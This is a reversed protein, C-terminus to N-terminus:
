GKKKLEVPRYRGAKLEQVLEATSSVWKEFYTATAPIHKYEHADSGGTGQWGLRRSLALSFRKEYERSRGNLTEITDVHEIIKKSLINEVAKDVTDYSSSNDRFPHALIMFGNNNNVLERLFEIRHIGFTFRKLGFVIIHGGLVNVEVAHFIPFGYKSSLTDIDEQDWFADHETFCVGDLGNQKAHLIMEEPTLKSDDSLPRTHTHLDVLM